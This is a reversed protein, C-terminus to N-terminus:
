RSQLKKQLKEVKQQDFNFMPLAKLDVHRGLKKEAKRVINDGVARARDPNRSLAEAYQRFQEETVGGEKLAKQMYALVKVDWNQDKKLGVAAIVIQSSIQAFKEDTLPNGPLLTPLPEHPKQPASAAPQAPSVPGVVPAAPVSAPAVPPASGPAGMNRGINRRQVIFALQAIILLVILALIIGRSKRAM